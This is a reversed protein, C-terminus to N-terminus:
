PLKGRLTRVDEVANKRARSPARSGLIDKVLQERESAAVGDAFRERYDEMSILVAAPQGNREVLIPEGGRSLRTLVKGLSRRVELANTTKM